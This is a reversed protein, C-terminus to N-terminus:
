SSAAQVTKLFTFAGNDVKYLSFVANKIDGNSDFTYKQGIGQFDTTAAVADRIKSKDSGGKKIANAFINCADYSQTAYQVVDQNFKAKYRSNFDKFASLSANDPGADSAYDGTRGGLDIFNKSHIGDGGMVPVGPDISSLQKAAPGAVEYLSGIFIIDPKKAKLNTLQTTFVTDKNTTHEHGVVTGGDATVDQEVHNALGQGYATQDDMIGVNKKGLEKVMFDADAKGQAADRGVVRFAYKFGQSTVKDNTASPSIMTIGNDNYVQSAPITAGSNLHGVVGVVGDDVLQQAATKAQQPDAQDDKADLSLMYTNGDDGKIGGKGNWESICLDVGNKEDVGVAQESGTLPAVSGLKLTKTQGGGGGSTGGCAALGILATGAFALGQITRRQM